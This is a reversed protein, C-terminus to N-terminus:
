QVAKLTTQSTKELKSISEKINGIEFATYRSNYKIETVDDKMKDAKDELKGLRTETVTKFTRYENIGFGIAVPISILTIVNVIGLEKKMWQMVPNIRKEEEM